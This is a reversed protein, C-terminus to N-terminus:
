NVTLQAATRAGRKPLTLTLVGHELKANAEAQDVELPLTFTRQYSSETRERYVLREGDKKEDSRQSTAQVSIQRGDIAVKVDEKAVGPVELKVTYARESEVVDLAPSRTSLAAEGAPAPSFFRELTDDFLRSLQRTERTVPVYFM